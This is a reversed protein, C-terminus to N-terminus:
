YVKNKLSTKPESCFQTLPVSIEWLGGIGEWERGGEDDVDGGSTYM